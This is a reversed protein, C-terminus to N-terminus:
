ATGGGGGGISWMNLVGEVEVELVGCTLCDRWRWRWCEM